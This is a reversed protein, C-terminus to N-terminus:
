YYQEHASNATITRKGTILTFRQKICTATGPSNIWSEQLRGLTCGVWNSYQIRNHRNQRNRPMQMLMGIAM